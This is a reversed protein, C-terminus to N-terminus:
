HQKSELAQPIAGQDGYFESGFQKILGEQVPECLDLFALLFTPSCTVRVLAEMELPARKIPKTALEKPSLYFFDMLCETGSRVMVVNNAFLTQTKDCLLTEPKTLNPFCKTREAFERLAKHMERSSHWLQNVFTQAPFYIELKNRLRKEPFDIKALIILVQVDLPIVQVFDAVYNYEPVPASEYDITLYLGQQQNDPTNLVKYNLGSNSFSTGHKKM